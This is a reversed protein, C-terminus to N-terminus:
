IVLFIILLSIFFTETGFQHVWQAEIDHKYKSLCLCLISTDTRLSNLLLREDVCRQDKLRERFMHDSLGRLRHLAAIDPSLEEWDDEKVETFDFLSVFLPFETNLDKFIVSRALLRYLSSKTWAETM